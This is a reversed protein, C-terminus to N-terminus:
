RYKLAIGLKLLKLDKEKELFLGQAESYSIRRFRISDGPMTQAMLPFDCAAIQAIKPYGGTTQRDALLVIPNGESPVQITGFCVAETIMEAPKELSLGPGKLRFGMRDSQPTVIFPETYLLSQSESNFLHFQRGEMIRIMPNKTYSPLLDSAITWDAEAIPETIQTKKLSHFILSSLKSLPRLPIQDGTKLARGNFGGIEARLYTSKSKMVSPIHFSGAVALYARCGSKPAGFRLIAGKKVFVPRWLKVSRGNVEPSLNGGCLAILSDQHFEISAGQLTFELTPDSEDNGVLLNAIRHAWVDMPGSVIVGYKQFGYRGLDQITTLLGPKHITLM